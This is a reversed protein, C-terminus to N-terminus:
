KKYYNNKWKVYHAKDACFIRINIRLSKKDNVTKMIKVLQEYAVAFFDIDQQQKGEISIM